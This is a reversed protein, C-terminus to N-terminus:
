RFAECHEPYTCVHVGRGHEDDAPFPHVNAFEVRRDLAIWAGGDTRIRAVTGPMGFVPVPAGGHEMGAARVIVRQGLSFSRLATM